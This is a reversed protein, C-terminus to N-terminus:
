ASPAQIDCGAGVVRDKSPLFMVPARSRVTINTMLKTPDNTMNALLIYGGGLDNDAITVDHPPIDSEGSEAGVTALVISGTDGKRGVGAILNDKIISHYVNAAHIGAGDCNTIINSSVVLRTGHLEMGHGSVDVRAVEDIDNHTITAYDGGVIAAECLNRFFNASVHWGRGIPVPPELHNVVPIWVGGAGDVFWCGTIKGDFSPTAVNLGMGGAYHGQGPDDPLAGGWHRFLCSEVTIRHCNSIVLLDRDRDAFLCDRLTLGDVGIFDVFDHEAPVGRQGLFGTREITIDHDILEGGGPWVPNANLMLAYDQTGPATKIQYSERGTGDIRTGGAIALQKSTVLGSRALPRLFTKDTVM